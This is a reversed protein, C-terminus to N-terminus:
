STASQWSRVIMCRTVASMMPTPTITAVRTTQGLILAWRPFQRRAAPPLCGRVGVHNQGTANWELTGKNTRTPRTVTSEGRVYRAEADTLADRSCLNGCDGSLSPRGGLFRAATKPALVRPRGLSGVHPKCWRPGRKSFKAGCGLVGEHM